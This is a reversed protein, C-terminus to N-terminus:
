ADASQERAADLLKANLRFLSEDLRLDDGTACDCIGPDLYNAPCDDAHQTM